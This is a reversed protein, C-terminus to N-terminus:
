KAGQARNLQEALLARFHELLDRWQEENQASARLMLLTKNIAEALEDNRM